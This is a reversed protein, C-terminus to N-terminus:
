QLCETFWPGLEDFTLTNLSFELYKQLESDDNTYKFVKITFKYNMLEELNAPNEYEPITRLESELCIGTRKNNDTNIVLEFFPDICMGDEGSLKDGVKLSEISNANSNFKTQIFDLNFRSALMDFAICIFYHIIAESLIVNETYAENNSIDNNAHGYLRELIFSFITKSKNGNLTLDILNWRYGTGYNESTFFAKDFEYDRIESFIAKLEPTKYITNGVHLLKIKGM